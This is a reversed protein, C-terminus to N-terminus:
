ASMSTNHRHVSVRFSHMDVRVHAEITTWVNACAELLTAEYSISILVNDQGCLDDAETYISHKQVGQVQRRVVWLSRDELVRGERRHYEVQGKAMQFGQREVQWGEGRM